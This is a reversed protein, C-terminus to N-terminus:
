LVEMQELMSAWDIIPRDEVIKGGRLRYFAEGPLEVQKGTPEVGMFTGKHIGSLVFRAAVEDGEAIISKVQISFDSFGAPFSAVFDPFADRGLAGPVGPHYLSYDSALFEDILEARQKNFVEELFERVIQKNQELVSM